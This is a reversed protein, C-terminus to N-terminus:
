KRFYRPFSALVPCQGTNTWAIRISPPNRWYPSIHGPKFHSSFSGETLSLNIISTIPTILIDICEKVLSTPIPDLNSSKCPARLILHRVTDATVCSLNQLAKRTDPPNLVRSHSDSPFSSRIVSIKNIFFLSFTNALAVISSHHPLHMKPCYHLIKNFAKWISGHDGSHEAIIKSYHASKGKSMQRNCLHTQKTLRSRNLATPNRRWVRKLYRHHRKSALIAPTMWPNPPKLSIKKTDLPAHLNILTHLVSMNNLWNLQMLKPIDLWNLIKIDAKFAEINISHLKGYKIAQPVTWSHNSPIQLNAVVSFHDSILDSTSVSLVNCGSSCIM